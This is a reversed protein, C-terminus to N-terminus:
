NFNSMDLAVKVACHGSVQSSVQGNFHRQVSVVNAKGDNQQTNGDLVERDVVHAGRFRGSVVGDRGHYVCSRTGTWSHNPTSTDM